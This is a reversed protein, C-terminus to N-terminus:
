SGNRRRRNRIGRMTMMFEMWVVRYEAAELLPKTIADPYVSDGKANNCASCALTVNSSGRAGGKSLPVIHDLTEGKEGCYQCTGEYSKILFEKAAKSIGRKGRKSM